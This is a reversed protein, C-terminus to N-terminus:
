KTHIIIYNAFYMKKSYAFSEFKELKESYKWDDIM